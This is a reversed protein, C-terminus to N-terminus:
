LEAHIVFEAVSWIAVKVDRAFRSVGRTAIVGPTKVPNGNKVNVKKERISSSEPPAPGPMTAHAGPMRGFDGDDGNDPIRM